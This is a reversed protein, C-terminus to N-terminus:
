GGTCWDDDVSRERWGGRCCGPRSGPPGGGNLPLGTVTGRTRVTHQSLVMHGAIQAMDPGILVDGVNALVIPQRRNCGDAVCPAYALFFAARHGSWRRVAIHSLRESGEHAGRRIAAPRGGPSSVRRWSLTLALGAVAGLGGAGRRGRRGRFRHGPRRHGWPPSASRRRAGRVSSGAVACDRAGDPQAATKYVVLSAASSPGRVPVSVPPPCDRGRPKPVYEAHEPHELIVTHEACPIGDRGAEGPNRGRSSGRRCSWHSAPGGARCM